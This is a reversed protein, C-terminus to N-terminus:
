AYEYKFTDSELESFDMESNLVEDFINGVVFEHDIKNDQEIEVEDELVCIVSQYPLLKYEFQTDINGSIGQYNSAIDGSINIGDEWILFCRKGVYEEYEKPVKHGISQVRGSCQIQKAKQTLVILGEKEKVQDLKVLINENYPKLM